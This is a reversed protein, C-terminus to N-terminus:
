TLMANLSSAFLRMATARWSSLQTCHSNARDREADLIKVEALAPSRRYGKRIEAKQRHQHDAIDAAPVTDEVAVTDAVAALVPV